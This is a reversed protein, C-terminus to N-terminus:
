CWRLDCLDVAALVLDCRFSSLIEVDGYVYVCVYLMSWMDEGVSVVSPLCAFLHWPDDGVVLWRVM